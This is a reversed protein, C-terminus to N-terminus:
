ISWVSQRRTPLSARHPHECSAFGPRFSACAARRSLVQGLDGPRARQAGDALQSGLPEVGAGEDDDDRRDHQELADDGEGEHLPVPVLHRPAQRFAHRAVHGSDDVQVLGAGVLRGVDGPEDVDALVAEVQGHGHQRAPLRGVGCGLGNKSRSSRASDSSIRALTFRGNQISVTPWDRCTSIRTLSSARWGASRPGARAPRRRWSACRGSRSPRCTPPAASPPSGTGACGSGARHQPERLGGVGEALAPGHRGVEARAARALHPLRRLREQLHALADAVM